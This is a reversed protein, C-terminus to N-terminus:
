GDQTGEHEIIRGSAEKETPLRGILIQVRERPADEDASTKAPTIWKDLFYNIMDKDGGKALEIGKDLIDGMDGKMRARLEGELALKYLTIQNKIGPPRGKPNGSQGKKFRNDKTAKSLVVAQETM